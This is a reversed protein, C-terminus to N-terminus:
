TFTIELPKKINPLSITPCNLVLLIKLRVFSFGLIVTRFRIMSIVGVLLVYGLKEALDPIFVVSLLIGFASGVLNNSFRM